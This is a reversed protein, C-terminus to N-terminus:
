KREKLIQLLEAALARYDGILKHKALLKYTATPTAALAKEIQKLRRANM